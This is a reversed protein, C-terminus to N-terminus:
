LSWRILLTLFIRQVSFSKLTPQMAQCISFESDTQLHTLSIRLKRFDRTMLTRSERTVAIKEDLVQVKSVLASKYEEKEAIDSKTDDLIKQYKQNEQELQQLQQELDSISDEASVTTPIAMPISIM